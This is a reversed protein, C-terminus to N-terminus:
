VRGRKQGSRGRNIRNTRPKKITVSAVPNRYIGRAQAERVIAEEAESASLGAVSVPGVLPVQITGEPLFECPLRNPLPRPWVRRSGISGASRGAPDVGPSSAHPHAQCPKRPICESRTAGPAGDPTPDGPLRRSYMRGGCPAARDHRGVASLPRHSDHTASRM